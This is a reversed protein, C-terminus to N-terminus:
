DIIKTVMDLQTQLMEDSRRPLPRVEICLKGKYRRLRFYWWVSRLFLAIDDDSELKADKFPVLGRGQVVDHTALQTCYDELSDFREPGGYRGLRYGAKSTREYKRWVEDQPYEALLDSRAANLKNLQGIADVVCTDFTFQVASIRALPALAEVGDIKLWIADREDLTALFNEDSEYIPKFAPFAGNYAACAYIVKLLQRTRGILKDRSDPAVCLEYNPFGADYTFRHGWASTLASIEDNKTEAIQWGCMLLARMVQQSRTRSIAVGSRDVFFTEIESGTQALNDPVPRTAEFYRILQSIEAMMAEKFFSNSKGAFGLCM